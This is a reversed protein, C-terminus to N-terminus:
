HKKHSVEFKGIKLYFGGSNKEGSKATRFDVDQKVLDGIRNTIPKIPNNMDQVGLVRYDDRQYREEYAAMDISNELLELDDPEVTFLHISRLAMDSVLMEIRQDPSTQNATTDLILPTKTGSINREIIPTKQDSPDVLKKNTVSKAATATPDITVPLENSGPRILFFFAAISAAAMFAAAPWLRITAKKKLSNKEPYVLGLDPALITAAYRQELETLHDHQKILDNLDLSKDPSLLGETKAIIFQEANQLDPTDNILDVQKLELKFQPDLSRDTLELEPLLEDEIVLEPHEELFALLLSADEESLNGELFDLYFAEYNFISIKEM